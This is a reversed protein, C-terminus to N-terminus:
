LLSAKVVKITVISPMPTILDAYALYVDNNLITIGRITINSMDLNSLIDSFSNTLTDYEAIFSNTQNSNKNGSVIIKDNYLDTFSEHIQYPTTEQTWTDTVFDYINIENFSNCQQNMFDEFSDCERGGFIHIKSNYIEGDNQDRYGYPMSSVDFDFTDLSTDYSIIKDNGAFILLEDNFSTTRLYRLQTFGNDVTTINNLNLDYKYIDNSSVSYISGNIIEIQRSEAVDPHTLDNQTLTTLNYKLVSENLGNDASYTIFFSNESSSSALDLELTDVQFTLIETFDLSTINLNSLENDSSCSSLSITVLLVALLNKM